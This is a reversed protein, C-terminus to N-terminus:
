WIKPAKDENMTASRQRIREDIMALSMKPEIAAEPCHHICNFCDICGDGFRPFPDMTIAGTPCENACIECKTCASEDVIRPITPFPQSLKAKMEEVRDAPQYDLVDLPIGAFDPDNLRTCVTQVLERITRDDEADPHGKGLPETSAWMLSHVGVVKAASAIRYGKANLATGMQWLAIGSAAAGWTVFPVAFSRSRVPLQEIFKMVPPVALDRYVPSGIFLGIGGEARAIADLVGSWDRENGLDLTQVNGSLAKVRDSITEAVHRTSGAPSCYVVFWQTEMM